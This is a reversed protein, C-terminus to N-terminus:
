ESDGMSSRGVCDTRLSILSDILLTTFYSKMVHPTIVEVSREYRIYCKRLKSRQAVKGSDFRIVVSLPSRSYNKMDYVFWYYDEKVKINNNNIDSYGPFVLDSGIPASARTWQTAMYDSSMADIYVIMTRRSSLKWRAAPECLPSTTSFAFLASTNGSSFTFSNSNQSSVKNHFVRDNKAKIDIKLNPDTPVNIGIQLILGDWMYM